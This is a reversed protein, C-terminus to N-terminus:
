AKRIVGFLDDAISNGTDTSLLLNGDEDNFPIKYWGKKDIAQVKLRAFTIGNFDKTLCDKVKKNIVATPIKESLKQWDLRRGIAITKTNAKKNSYHTVDILWQGKQMRLNRITCLKQISYKSMNRMKENHQTQVVLKLGTM